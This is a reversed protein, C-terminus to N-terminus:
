YTLSEYKVQHTYVPHVLVLCNKFFNNTVGIIRYFVKGYM